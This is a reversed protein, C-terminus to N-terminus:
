VLQRFHINQLLHFLYSELIPKFKEKFLKIIKKELAAPNNHEKIVLYRSGKGYSLVRKLDNQGSYGIKYRNTGILVVPQVLYVIGKSLSM